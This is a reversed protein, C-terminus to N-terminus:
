RGELDVSFPKGVIRLKLAEGFDVLVAGDAAGAVRGAVRRGDMRAEAATITVKGSTDLRYNGSVLEAPGGILRAAGQATLRERGNLRWDVEATGGEWNLGNITGSLELDGGLRLSGAGKVKGGRWEGALVPVTVKEGERWLTTRFNELVGARAARLEIEAPGSEKKDDMGIARSFFGSGRWARGLVRDLDALELSEADVVLRHPRATGAEYRYSGTWSLGGAAARLSPIVLRQQQWVVSAAAIKVPVALEPVALEANRL